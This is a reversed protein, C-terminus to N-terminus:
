SSTRMIELADRLAVCTWWPVGCLLFREEGARSRMKKDEACLMMGDDCEGYKM